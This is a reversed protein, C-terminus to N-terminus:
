GPTPPGGVAVVVAKVPIPTGGRSLYIMYFQYWFHAQVLPILPIVALSGVLCTCWIMANAVLILVLTSTLVEVWTKAIFDKIWALDFGAPFDHALGARISVPTVIFLLLAMLVIGLAIGVIIGITGIVPGVNEGALGAAGAICGSCILTILVFVVGWGIAVVIMALFPWIGRMLYDAIRNLDFDPYRADRNQLLGDVVEFQYGMVIIQPVIPIICAVLQCLFLWVLNLLWNPNEFVYNVTRSYDLSAPASPPLKADPLSM